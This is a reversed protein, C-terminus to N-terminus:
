LENLKFFTSYPVDYSIVPNFNSSTSIGYEFFQTTSPFLHKLKDNLVILKVTFSTSEPLSSELKPLTVGICNITEDPVVNVIDLLITVNDSPLIAVDVGLLFIVPYLTLKEPYETTGFLAVTFVLVVIFAFKLFSAFFYVMVRLLLPAAACPVAFIYSFYSVPTYKSLSIVFNIVDLVLGIVFGEFADYLISNLEFLM